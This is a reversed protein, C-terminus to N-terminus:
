LNEVNTLLLINKDSINSKKNEKKRKYILPIKFLAAIFSKLFISNGILISKILWLPLFLFHYFLIKIDTINKWIFLFQNRLNYKELDKSSYKKGFTGHLKHYLIANPEFILKWGQKWARYSIDVDEWCVPQFLEDFGGLALFKEKDYASSGGSIYFTSTTKKQNIKKELRFFGKKFISKQASIQITKKDFLFVKGMVGFVNKDHFHELLYPICDQKVKIDNDLLIVYKYKSKQVGYVFGKMYENKELLIIKIESFNNQVFEISKDISKNDVIIIEYESNSYKASQIVSFLCEKLLELGNYNLIIISFNPINM